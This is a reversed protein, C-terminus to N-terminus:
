PSPSPKQALRQLAAKAEQTPRAAAPGRALTQLLERAEPTGIRELVQVTRVLRLGEPSLVQDKRGAIHDLLSEIRRHVEPTPNGDLARRLDVVVDKGLLKLERFARDRVSFREDELEKLCRRLRQGRDETAPGLHGKLATVAMGKAAVLSAMARHAAAADDEALAEWLGELDRDPTGSRVLPITSLDWVLVTADASGTALRKGDPAFAVSYVAGKHGTLQVAERGGVADCLSVTGNEGGVALAKGDPSFALAAPSRTLDPLRLAVKGTAVEWLWVGRKSDGAAVTLGDPSFAAATIADGAGELRVLDIGADGEWQIVGDSQLTTLNDGDLSPAIALAWGQVRSQLRLARGTGADWLRVSRDPSATAVAKGDRSFTLCNVERGHGQLTFRVKGEAPDWLRVQGNEGGSALITGDPSFALALFFNGPEVLHREERSSTSDWLAVDTNSGAALTKGDPSFVVARVPGRHGLAKLLEKGTAVEWLRLTLDFAHERALTL